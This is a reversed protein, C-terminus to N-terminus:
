RASSPSGYCGTAGRTGSAHGRDARARRRRSRGAGHGCRGLALGATRSRGSSGDRHRRGTCPAAIGRPSRFPASGSCITTMSVVRCPTRPRWQSAAPWSPAGSMTGALELLELPNGRTEAALRDRVREDLHGAVTATLFARADDDTLGNLTLTPLAPYLQEDAVERVGFLLLVSEALLRRGVFGM